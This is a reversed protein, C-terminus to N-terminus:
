PKRLTAHARDDVADPGQEGIGAPEAEDAGARNDAHGIPRRVALKVQEGFLRTRGLGRVRPGTGNLLRPAAPVRLPGTRRIRDQREGGVGNGPGHPEDHDREGQHTGHEEDLEQLRVGGTVVQVTLNLTIANANTPPTSRLSRTHSFASRSIASASAPAPAPDCRAWSRACIGGSM